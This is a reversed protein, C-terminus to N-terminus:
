TMVFLVFGHRTGLEYSKRFDVIIKDATECASRIM